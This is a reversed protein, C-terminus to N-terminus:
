VVRRGNGNARANTQWKLERAEKPLEQALPVCARASRLIAIPVGIAWPKQFGFFSAFALARSM